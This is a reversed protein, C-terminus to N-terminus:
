RTSPEEFPTCMGAADDVTHRHPETGSGPKARSNLQATALSTAYAIDDRNAFSRGDLAAERFVRWWGEQLNLWCAGVPIFAHHIRPHDELWTRTSRMVPSQPKGVTVAGRVDLVTRFPDGTM